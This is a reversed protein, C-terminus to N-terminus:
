RTLTRLDLAHWQTVELDGTSWWLSWYDTGPCSSSSPKGSIACVFPSSQSPAYSMKFGAARFLDQATDGGGGSVCAGQVGGGLQNFDAIVTVGAGTGCVAASAPAAPGLLPLVLGAAAITVVAAALRALRHRPTM